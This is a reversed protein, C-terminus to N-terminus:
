MHVQYEDNIKEQFEKAQKADLTKRCVVNCMQHELMKFQLHDVHSPLPTDLFQIVHTRVQEFM